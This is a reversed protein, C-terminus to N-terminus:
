VGPRANHNFPEEDITCTPVNAVSTIDYSGKAPCKPETKLYGTGDESYIDALVPVANPSKNYDMAWREKSESIKILIEQCARQQALTRNRWWAPAAIAIVIGIIGTVIMIEIMTFGKSRNARKM